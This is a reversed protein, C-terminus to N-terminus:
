KTKDKLSRLLNELEETTLRTHVQDNVIVVPAYDCAGMCNTVELSFKRDRSVSGARVKLQNQLENLYTTAGAIHCATGRCIKIHYQGRPFFRFQDYFTAVGYVKNVPLDLHRSVALLLEENLHGYQKQIVQLLPLLGEKKAPTFQDLIHALDDTIM